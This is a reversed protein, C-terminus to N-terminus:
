RINQLAHILDHIDDIEYVVYFDIGYNIMHFFNPNIFECINDPSFLDLWVWKKGKSGVPNCRKLIFYKEGTDMVYTKSEKTENALVTITKLPNAIVRKM